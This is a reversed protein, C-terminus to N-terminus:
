IDFIIRTSYENNVKKIEIQHFTVAKIEVKLQHRNDDCNEGTIITRLNVKNNEKQIVIRNIDGMIWKKTLFLFNLEDLFRVLLEEYSLESINIERKDSLNIGNKEIVSEQWAFASATFLDEITDAKVEVAIDATHDIFNYEWSM